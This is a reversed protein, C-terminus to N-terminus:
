FWEPLHSSAKRPRNLIHMRSYILTRLDTETLKEYEFYSPKITMFYEWMSYNNGTFYDRIETVGVSRITVIDFDREIVVDNDKLDKEISDLLSHLRLSYARVKYIKDVSSIIKYFILGTLLTIILLGVLSM